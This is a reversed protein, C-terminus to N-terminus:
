AASSSKSKISSLPVGVTTTASGTGKHASRVRVPKREPLTRNKVASDSGNNSHARQPTGDIRGATIGLFIRLGRYLSSPPVHRLMTWLRWPRLFFRQFARRQMQRVNVGYAHEYWSTDNYYDRLTIHEVAVPSEKMALKHMPTNEQPVVLYFGAWTLRSNVAYDITAQIEEVTETPFGLMFFGKSLIGAQDCANIVEMAQDLKLDKEILAQLRPTITEIAVTIQFVGMRAMLPIDEIEFIDARIGNPFCFHLKREGFTDIVQQAIKRMRPKHLNFIDDIIQIEDVDYTNHLLDIEALVNEASRWRFKKGFIDHCYNCKYPCGRSTFIGAYRKGKLWGNQNPRRAYIDFDVLDWAPLPLADLDPISDYGGNEIYENGAEHWWTLGQVTSLDGKELFHIRVAQAFTREAEGDFTWDFGGIELVRRPSSHTYPGGIATIIEPWRQKIAQGIQHSAEAEYNLASVGVLDYQGIDTTKVLDAPSDEHLRLDLIDVQIDQINERLYAALYLLGLPPQCITIVSPQYPKILLIRVM